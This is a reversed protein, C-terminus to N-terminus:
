ADYKERILRIQAAKRVLFGDVMDLFEHYSVGLKVATCYVCGMLQSMEELVDDRNKPVVKNDDQWKNYAGVVEGAEEAIARVWRETPRDPWLEGFEIMRDEIM